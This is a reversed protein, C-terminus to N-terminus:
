RCGAENVDHYFPLYLTFRTSGPKSDLEILGDMRDIIDQTISLGLGTGEARGTVMPYFVTDAIHQPIGPGSDVFDIRAVRRHRQQRITIQHAVRTIVKFEGDGSMAQMANRVINIVAQILSERVCAVAPMSPDYDRRFHVREFGEAMVLTLVHELVDHVNVPERSVSSAPGTMRNILNTLRDAERVIVQTYDRLEATDLQRELLQAAGRLGGLPNKIEHAIGGLVARSADSHEHWYSDRVLRRLRNLEAFELLCGEHEGGKDIPTVTCDVLVDQKTPRFRVSAERITISQQEQLASSISELFSAPGPILASIPEGMVREQNIEFLMQAAANMYTVHLADDCVLVATTLQDLIRSSDTESM